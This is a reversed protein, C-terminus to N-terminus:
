SCLQTKHSSCQGEDELLFGEPLDFAVQAGLNNLAQLTELLGFPMSQPLQDCDIVDLNQLATLTALPPLERLQDCDQLRLTAIATLTALPPVEM